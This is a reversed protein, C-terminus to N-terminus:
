PSVLFLTIRANLTAERFSSNHPLPPKSMLEDKVEACSSPFHDGGNEPRKTGSSVLGLVWHVHPKTPGLATRSAIAFLFIQEEGSFPVGSM